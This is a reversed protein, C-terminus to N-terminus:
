TPNSNQDDDVAWCVRQIIESVRDLAIDFFEQGAKGIHEKELFHFVLEEALGCDLTEYEFVCKFQGPTGTKALRNLEGARVSGSRRSSGIKHVGVRFAPNQLVYVVGPYGLNNRCFYPRGTSVSERELKTM